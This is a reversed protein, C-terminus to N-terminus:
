RDLCDLQEQIAQLYQKAEEVMAHQPQSSSSPSTGQRAKLLTEYWRQHHKLYECYIAKTPRDLTARRQLEIGLLLLSRDAEEGQQSHSSSAVQKSEALLTIFYRSGIRDIREEKIRYGVVPDDKELFQRLEGLFKPRSDYPQLVLHQIGLSTALAPSEKGKAGSLIELMTGSGMGSICITDVENPDLSRLGDGLRIEVNLKSRLSPALSALNRQADQLPKTACDIGITKIQLYASVAMTLFGHDCGVDAVAKTTSPLMQLVTTLRQGLHKLVDEGLSLSSSCPKSTSSSSCYIGSSFCSALRRRIIRGPSRCTFALASYLNMMVFLAKM